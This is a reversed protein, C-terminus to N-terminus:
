DAEKRRRVSYARLRTLVEFSLVVLLLYYLFVLWAGIQPVNLVAGPCSSLCSVVWVLFRLPIAAIWDLLMSVFLFPAAFVGPPCVLLILSSAFGAVTVPTVVISALLNAPLFLLGIQRFYFFQLPLVCAQAVSVTLLCDLFMRLWRNPVLEKFLDAIPAVLFIIGSVAVYSLQFGPDAVSLPDVITCILLACALLGEIKVRRGLSSCAIALACMLSARVVSSSNGAFLVFVSMMAFSLCNTPIVSLGLVRCVWHTSLTVVTLNFGSAALVHSLGVARFSTLLDSNLGVAREGLVMATLLSGIDSGLNGIHASILRGRQAETSDTIADAIQLAVSPTKDDPLSYFSRGGDLYSLSTVGMRKLYNAYGQMGNSELDAISAVRCLCRFHSKRNLKEFFSSSKRIFLLTIGDCKIVEFRGDRKIAVNRVQCTFRKTTGNRVPLCSEVDAEIYVHKGAFRALDKDSAHVQRISTYTFGLIPLVSLLLCIVLSPFRRSEEFACDNGSLALAGLFFGLLSPFIILAWSQYCACVLAGVAFQLSALLLFVPPTLM